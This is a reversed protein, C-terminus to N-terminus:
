AERVRAAAGADNGKLVAFLNLLEARRLQFSARNAICRATVEAIEELIVLGNEELTRGTEVIDVICDSLNLLPAIEVSGTLPIIEVPTAREHFHRMAVRPYKTAVRLKSLFNSTRVASDPKGAVVLRCRGFGLDLPEHVDPSSELLVDRGCVGVDAVGREVYIPVDGPKVLLFNYRKSADEVLLKRTGLADWDVSVDAAALRRFIADQLRGKALAITLMSDVNFFSGFRFAGDGTM